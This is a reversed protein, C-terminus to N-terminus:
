GAAPGLLGACDCGLPASMSSHRGLGNVQGCSNPCGTWHMRVMRPVDLESELKRVVQMIPANSCVACQLVARVLQTWIHLTLQAADVETQRKVAVSQM